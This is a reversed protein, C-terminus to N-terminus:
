VAFALPLLMHQLKSAALAFAVLALVIFRMRLRTANRWLLLWAVLAYAALLSTWEAYFTALYMTNGPDAFVLPVLAANTIAARVDGRRLLAHSLGISLALLAIWRLAAVLRADHVADGGLAEATTWALATL